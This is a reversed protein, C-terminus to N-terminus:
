RYRTVDPIGAAEFGERRLRCAECNGCARGESDARYCSVTLSYDIGLRTGARIIEAKSHDILPTRIRFPRGEVGDRTALNAMKEFAAVFEGRCDPYGSYDIANVGICIDHIGRAEALALAVSLLVANRAPVYTAPIGEDAGEPVAIDLDTLASAGFRALDLEMEVLESETEQALRRAARLEVEHRQGYWVSLAVVGFGHARAWYLVTASDMGGSLLVVAPKADESM